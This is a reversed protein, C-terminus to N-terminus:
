LDQLLLRAPIIAPSFLGLVDFVSATGSTIVRKTISKPISINIPTAIHLTDKAVDWHVGLAKPTNDPSLIILPSSEQLESPILNRFKASNTRWKRITMGASELIDCTERRLQDAEQVIDAGSLLDDVYFDKQMRKATLPYSVSVINALTRLVQTALFPSSTISFTVRKMRCDILAGAEDRLIFRHLDRDEPHLLVERFMKSIDASVGVRHKRFRILIDSLPPYPCSGPLLIDNLSVGSITKASADFVPRLKTTTSSDKFVGHVPLYHPTVDIQHRPIIEAHDLSIYERLADNFTHLKDKRRLTKENALLRRVAQPRSKSLKAPSCRGPLKVM